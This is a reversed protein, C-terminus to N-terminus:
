CVSGLHQLFKYVKVKIIPITLVYATSAKNKHTKIKTFQILIVCKYPEFNTAIDIKDYYMCFIERKNTSFNM